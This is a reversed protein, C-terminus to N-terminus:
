GYLIVARADNTISLRQGPSIKIGHGLAALTWGKVALLRSQEALHGLLRRRGFMSFVQQLDRKIVFAEGVADLLHLASVAM